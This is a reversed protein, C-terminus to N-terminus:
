AKLGRVLLTDVTSMELNCQMIMSNTASTLRKKMEQFRSM